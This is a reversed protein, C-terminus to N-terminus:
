NMQQQRQWANLAARAAERRTAEPPDGEMSGSVYCGCRREIHAVSGIVMRAACERHVSHCFDESLLIPEGCHQCNM